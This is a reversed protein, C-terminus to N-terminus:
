LKKAEKLQEQRRPSLYGWILGCVMKVNKNGDIDYAWYKKHNEKKYHYPGQIRGGMISQARMLPELDTMQIRLKIQHTKREKKKGKYWYYRDTRITGEGEFLGAFYAIGISKPM